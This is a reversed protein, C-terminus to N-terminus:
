LEGRDLLARLKRGVDTGTHLAPDLPPGASPWRGPRGATDEERPSANAGPAKLTQEWTGGTRRLRLSLGAEALRRDATDFYRSEISRTKAVLRCLASGVAVARAPDVLLKLETESM